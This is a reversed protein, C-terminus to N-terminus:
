RAKWPILAREVLNPLAATGFGIVATTLLGVYMREVAFIQRSNWGLYGIGSRAGVFEAAVIVPLAVGVGLRLGTLILPM